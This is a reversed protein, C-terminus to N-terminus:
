EAPDDEDLFRDVFPNGFVGDPDYETVLDAFDALREYQARVVSPAMRFVKGWHPRPAFPLLAREVEDVVPAVATEDDVWTFHFGITPRRYSPSLWL